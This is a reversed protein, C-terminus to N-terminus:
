RRRVGSGAAGPAAAVCGDDGPGTCVATAEEGKRGPRSDRECLGVGVVQLMESAAVFAFSGCTVAVVRGGGGGNHGAAAAAEAGDPTKCIEYVRCLPPVIHCIIFM